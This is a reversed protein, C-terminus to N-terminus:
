PAAPKVGFRESSWPTAPFDENYGRLIDAYHWPWPNIFLSIVNIAIAAGCTAIVLALGADGRSTMSTLMCPAISGVGVWTFITGVKRKARVTELAAMAKPSESVHKELHNEVDQAPLEFREYRPGGALDFTFACSSTLLVSFLLATRM